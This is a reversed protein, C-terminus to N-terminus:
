KGITLSKAIFFVTLYSSMWHPSVSNLFGQFSWLYELTRLKSTCFSFFIDERLAPLVIRTSNRHRGGRHDGRTSHYYERPPLEQQLEARHLSQVLFFLVPGRICDAHGGLLAGEGVKRDGGQSARNGAPSVVALTQPSLLQTLFSQVSCACRHCSTSFCYQSFVLIKSKPGTEWISILHM